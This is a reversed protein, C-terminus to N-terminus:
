EASFKHVTTQRYTEGPRLVSTPFDPKNPSDPFKQAELCFAFNKKYATGGKGTLSGDLFNGTYFQLGPETTFIEMVRGSAPHKVKAAIRLTGPTGNVVFNHDYGGPDGPIQAIREGIAHPTRFDVPTDEVPALEGTPIFTDDTPTYRQALITLEHDLITQGSAEGALNWYAHNTLNVVTPKDTTAVYDFSLENNDTLTYTVSCTLAGPYGEDGDPSTHTFRVGVGSVGGQLVERGLAESQWLAKDFGANGGHLHNPANNTALTFANGELTFKGLAIRNAYRGVTSGIYPSAGTYPEVNNFGLTIDAMNGDRDPVEMSVLTAGWDTLTAKLGNANTLTFLKVTRGDPLKDWSENVEVKAQKVATDGGPVRDPINELLSGDGGGEEQEPAPEKPSCAALMAAAACVCIAWSISRKM